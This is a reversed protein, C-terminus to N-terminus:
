RRPRPGVKRQAVPAHESNQLKDFGVGIHENGGLPELDRSGWLALALAPALYWSLNYAWAFSALALLLPLSPLKQRAQLAKVLATLGMAVMVFLGALGIRLFSSVYWNHPPYTVLLGDERLHAWGQGAPAGFLVTFLGDSINREVLVTWDFVRGEYTRTDGFSEVLRESLWPFGGLQTVVVILCTSFVAVAAWRLRRGGGISLFLAALGAAAAAWVSRHQALIVMLLLVIGLAGYRRRGTRHAVSFAVLMAVALVMAQGAVIPRGAEVVEGDVSRGTGAGGLGFTAINRIAVLLIAAGTWMAWREISRRTVRKQMGLALVWVCVAIIYIWARSENIATGFGFDRAGRVLTFLFLTILAAGLGLRVPHMRRLATLAAAAFLLGAILDPFTVALGGANVIQPWVRVDWTFTAVVGISFFGLTPFRVVSVVVIPGVVLAALVILLDSM